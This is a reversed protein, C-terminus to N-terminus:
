GPPGEGIVDASEQGEVRERYLWATAKEAGLILSMGLALDATAFFLYNLLETDRNYSQVPASFGFRLAVVSTVYSVGQLCEWVGLLRLGVAFLDRPPTTM